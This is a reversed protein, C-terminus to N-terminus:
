AQRFSPFRSFGHFLILCGNQIDPGWSFKGIPMNRTGPINRYRFDFMPYCLYSSQGLWQDKATSQAGAARPGRRHEPFIVDGKNVRSAPPIYIHEELDIMSDTMMMSAATVM